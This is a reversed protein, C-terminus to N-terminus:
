PSTVRYFAQPFLPADMILINAPLALMPFNTIVTWTGTQLDLRREVSYSQGAVASFSLNFLSGATSTSVIVPPVVANGANGALLDARFSNGNTSVTIEMEFSLDTGDRLSDPGGDATTNVTFSAATVSLAASRLTLIAINKM